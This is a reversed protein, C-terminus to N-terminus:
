SNSANTTVSFITTTVFSSSWCTNVSMTRRLKDEQTPLSSSPLVLYSDDPQYNPMKQFAAMVKSASGTCSDTTIRAITKLPDQLFLNLQQVMDWIVEDSFALVKLKDRYNISLATLRLSEMKQGCEQLMQKGRVSSYWISEKEKFWDLMKRLIFDSQFDSENLNYLKGVEKTLIQGLQVENPTEVAFVLKELFEKVHEENDELAEIGNGGTEEKNKVQIIPKGFTESM